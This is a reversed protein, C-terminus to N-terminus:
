VPDWMSEEIYKKLKGDQNGNVIDRIDKSTALGEEVASKIVAATVLLSVRRVQSLDPLLSAKPDSIAPSLKGLADIGAMIM